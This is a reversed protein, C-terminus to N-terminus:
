GGVSLLNNGHEDANGLFDLVVFLTYRERWVACFREDGVTMADDNFVIGSDAAPEAVLLVNSRAARDNFRGGFYPGLGVHDHLDLLRDSGLIRVDALALRQERVEM